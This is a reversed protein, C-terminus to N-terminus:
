RQRKLILRRWHGEKIEKGKIHSRIALKHDTPEQSGWSFTETSSPLPDGPPLLAQGAKTAVLHSKVFLYTIPIHFFM